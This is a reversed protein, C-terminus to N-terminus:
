FAEKGMTIRKKIKVHCKADITLLLPPLLDIKCKWPGGFAIILGCVHTHHVPPETTPETDQTELTANEFSVRAAICPGQAFRESM